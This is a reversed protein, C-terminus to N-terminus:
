LQRREGDRLSHLGSTEATMEATSTNLKIRQPFIFRAIVNSIDIPVQHSAAIFGKDFEIDLEDIIALNEIKLERLM